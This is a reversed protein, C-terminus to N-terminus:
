QPFDFDLALITWCQAYAIGFLPGHEEKEDLTFLHAWEHALLVLSYSTENLVLPRPFRLEYHGSPCRRCDALADDPVNNLLRVIVRAGDPPPALLRLRAVSETWLKPTL